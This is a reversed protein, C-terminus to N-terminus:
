CFTELAEDINIDSYEVEGSFIRAIELIGCGKAMLDAMLYTSEAAFRGNGKYRYLLYGAFNSLEKSYANIMKDADEEDVPETIIKNLLNTWKDELVEMGDFIEARLKSGARKGGSIKVLRDTLPISDDFVAEVYGPLPIKSGDDAVLEFPANCNIVLRCAEECVLGIGAEVHDDFRNYFRPHERCIDCLYDEGHKKIMECLNDDCLFPCRGDERLIFGGDRIKDAVEPDQMFRSISDKDIGIEWGACCTHLCKDAKCQFESYYNPWYTIM